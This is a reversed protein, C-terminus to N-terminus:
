TRRREAALAKRVRDGVHRPTAARERMDALAELFREQSRRARLCPACLAAHADIRRALHAPCNGDLYDWLSALV